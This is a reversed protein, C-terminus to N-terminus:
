ACTTSGNVASRRLASGIVMFGIILMFWTSPEPVAGPPIEEVQEEQGIIGQPTSALALQDENTVIGPIDTGGANEIMPDTPAAPAEDSPLDAQFIPLNQSTAPQVVDRAPSLRRRQPIGPFGRPVNLVRSTESADDISPPVFATLAAPAAPMAAPADFLERQNQFGFSTGGLMLFFLGVAIRQHKRETLYFNGSMTAM